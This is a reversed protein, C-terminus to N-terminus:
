YIVLEIGGIASWLGCRRLWWGLGGRRLWEGERWGLVRWLGLDDRHANLRLSRHVLGLRLEVGVCVM